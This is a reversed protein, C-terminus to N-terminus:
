WASFSGGLLIPDWNRGPLLKQGTCCFVQCTELRQPSSKPVAGHMSEALGSFNHPAINVGLHKCWIMSTSYATFRPWWTDIWEDLADWRHKIQNLNPSNLAWSLSTRSTLGIILWTAGYQLEMHLLSCPGTKWFWSNPNSWGLCGKTGVHGQCGNGQGRNMVIISYLIIYIGEETWKRGINVVVSLSCEPANSGLTKGDCNKGTLCIKEQM